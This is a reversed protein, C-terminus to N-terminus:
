RPQWPATIHLQAALDSGADDSPAAPMDEPLKEGRGM